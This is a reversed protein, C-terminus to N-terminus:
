PPSPRHKIEIQPHDNVKEAESKVCVWYRIISNSHYTDSFKAKRSYHEMKCTKYVNKIEKERQKAPKKLIQYFDSYRYLAVFKPNLEL